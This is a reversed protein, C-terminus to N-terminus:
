TKKEKYTSMGISLGISGISGISLGISIWICILQTPRDVVINMWTVSLFLRLGKKQKKTRFDLYNQLGESRGGGGVGGWLQDIVVGGSPIIKRVKQLLFVKEVRILRQQM